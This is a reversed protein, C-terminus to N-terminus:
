SIPFGPIQGQFIKFDVTITGFAMKLPCISIWVSHRDNFIIELNKTKQKGLAMTAFFTTLTLFKIM